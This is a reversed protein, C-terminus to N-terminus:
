LKHWASFISLVRVGIQFHGQYIWIDKNFDTYGIDLVVQVADRDEAKVSLFPRKLMRLNNLMSQCPSLLTTYGYNRSNTYWGLSMLFGMWPDMKERTNRILFFVFFAEQCVCHPVIQCYFILWLVQSERWQSTQKPWARFVPLERSCILQLSLDVIVMLPSAIVRKLTANFLDKLSDIMNENPQM